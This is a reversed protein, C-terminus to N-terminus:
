WPLGNIQLKQEWEAFGAHRSCVFHYPLSQLFTTCPASSTPVSNKKKTLTSKKSWESRYAFVLLATKILRTAHYLKKKEKKPVFFLKLSRFKGELVEVMNRERRLALGKRFAM